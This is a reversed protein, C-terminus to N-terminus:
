SFIAKLQTLWNKQSSDTWKHRGNKDVYVSLDANSHPTRVIKVRTLDELCASFYQGVNGILSVITEPRTRSKEQVLEYFTLADEFEVSTCPINARNDLTQDCLEPIENRAIAEYFSKRLKSPLFNKVYNKHAAEALKLCWEPHLLAYKTKEHLEDFSSWAIWESKEDILSSLGAYPHLRDSMLCGGAALIEFTRRNLDGNGSCNFSVTALNYDQISQLLPKVQMDVSIKQNKLSQLAQERLWHLPSTSGRFVLGLPRNTSPEMQINPIVMSPPVWFCNKLGAKKFFHLHQAGQYIWHFHSGVKKCYDIMKRIGGNELHNTDGLKMVIKGGIADLNQPVVDLIRASLEIIEPKFDKPFKSKIAEGNFNPQIDITMQKAIENSDCGNAGLKSNLYTQADEFLHDSWRGPYAVIKLHDIKTNPRM